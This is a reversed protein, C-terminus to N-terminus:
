NVKTLHFGSPNPIKQIFGGSPLAWPRFNMLDFFLRWKSFGVKQTSCSQAEYGPHNTCKLHRLFAGQRQNLRKLESTFRQLCVSTCCKVDSSFHGFSLCPANRLWEFYVFWGPYSTCLQLVWFTPKEFHCEKKSKICRLGHGRGDPPNKFFEKSLTKIKEQFATWKIM